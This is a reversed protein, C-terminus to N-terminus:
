YIEKRIYIILTICSVCSGIFFYPMINIGVEPITGFKESLEAIKAEDDESLERVEQDDPLEEVPAEPNDVATPADYTLAGTILYGTVGNYSIRSWSYGDKNGDSVGTRLVETGVELTQIIGSDTGYNQRVNVRRNTYMTENTSSFNLTVAPAPAPTNDAVPAPNPDTITVTTELTKVSNVVEYNANSLIIGNVSINANGAVKGPFSATYNGPWSLDMNVKVERKATQTSGDSYTVTVGGIDYGSVDQPISVTVTFNEGVNCNNASVSAESAQVKNSCILSLIVFFATTMLIKVVNTKKM